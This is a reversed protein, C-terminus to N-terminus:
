EESVLAIVERRLWDLNQKSSSKLTKWGDSIKHNRRVEKKIEESLGISDLFKKSFLQRLSKQVEMSFADREFISELRGDEAIWTLLTRRKNKSLYSDVEQARFYEPGKRTHVKGLSTEALLFLFACHTEENSAATSRLVQFDLKSLKESIASESRRLQGWLIDPSRKENRFTVIATRLLLEKSKPNMSLKTVKKSEFYSLSPDLLFRRSQLVLRAVNRASIATGLNRTTDVPDLIVVPSEFSDALDKDYEELSIVEHQKWKSIGLLTGLFSGKWLTLVECVYGSFGQVKVEAGYVGLSKVFKKFLRAETNMREDLKSAIYKTHFPSRDAASRWEGRAVKYCPVLNVRVKDVHAEVYPHEAYRLNVQFGAMAEMASRVAVSELKERSFEVPYLLFYDIDHNGKLWTGRAYSGGLVIEPKPDSAERELTAEILGRVKLAVAELKKIESSDPTVLKSAKELVLDPSKEASVM